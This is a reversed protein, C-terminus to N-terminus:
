AAYLKTYLKQATEATDKVAKTSLKTLDKNQATATEVANAYNTTMTKYFATVDKAKTLAKANDFATAVNSLYNSYVKKALAEGSKAVSATYDTLSEVLKESNETSKVFFAQSKELAEVTTTKFLKNTKTANTM